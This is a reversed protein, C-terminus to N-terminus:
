NLYSLLTEEFEPASPRTESHNLIKGDSAVFIYQPLGLIISQTGEFETEVFTFYSLPNTEDTGIWYHQGQWNNKQVYKKWYGYPDDMSITIFNVPENQYKKAIKKFIPTEKLCPSCWTAWYDIVLLKGRFQNIPIAISDLNLMTGEPVINGVAVTAMKEKKLPIKKKPPTPTEKSSTPNGCSIFILISFFFSFTKM